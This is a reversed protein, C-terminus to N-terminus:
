SVRRLTILAATVTVAGAMPPPGPRRVAAKARALDM